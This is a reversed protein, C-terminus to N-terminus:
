PKSLDTQTYVCAQVKGDADPWGHNLQLSIPLEREHKRSAPRATDFQYWKQM